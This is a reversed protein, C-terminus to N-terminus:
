RVSRSRLFGHTAAAPTAVDNIRRSAPPERAARRSSRDALAGAVRKPDDLWPLGPHGGDMVHLEGAPLLGIFTRWLEVPATRTAAPSSWLRRIRSPPWATREFTLTPDFGHRNVIARIMSRESRMDGTQNSLAIRWDLYEDPILGQDLSARHGM